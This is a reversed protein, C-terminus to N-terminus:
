DVGAQSPEHASVGVDVLSTFGGPSHDGVDRARGVDDGADAGQELLTRYRPSTLSSMRSIIPMRRLSAVRWEMEMRVSSLGSRGWTMASRTWNCCTNMFRMSLPMSAMFSM